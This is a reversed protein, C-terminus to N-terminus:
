CFQLYKWVYEWNRKFWCHYDSKGLPSLIEFGNVITDNSSIVQDLTSEQLVGGVVRRRTIEDTVHWTLGFEAILDIYDNQIFLHMKGLIFKLYM